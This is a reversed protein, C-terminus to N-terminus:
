ACRMHVAMTMCPALPMRLPRLFARAARRRRATVADSESQEASGRKWGRPAEQAYAGGARRM